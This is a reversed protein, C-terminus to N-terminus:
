TQQLSERGHLKGLPTLLQPDDDLLRSADRKLDDLLEDDNDDNDVAADRTGDVENDVDNRSLFEDIRREDDDNDDDDDISSAGVDICVHTRREDLLADGILLLHLGACAIDDSTGAARASLRAQTFSGSIFFIYVEFCCVFCRM